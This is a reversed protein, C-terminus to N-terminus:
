LQLVPAVVDEIVILGKPVVVYVAEPLLEPQEEETAELVTVTFVVGVILMPPFLVMQEPSLVVKDAM